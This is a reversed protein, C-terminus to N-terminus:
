GEDPATAAVLGLVPAQCQELELKAEDGECRSHAVLCDYFPAMDVPAVDVEQCLNSADYTLGLCESLGNMHEVYRYCAARNDSAALPPIVGTCALLALVLPVSALRSM